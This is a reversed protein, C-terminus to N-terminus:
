SIDSRPDQRAMPGEVIDHDRSALTRSVKFRYLDYILAVATLIMCVYGMSAFRDDHHWWTSLLLFVVVAVPGCRM